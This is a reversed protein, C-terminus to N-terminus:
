LEGKIAHKTVCIYGEPATNVVYRDAAKKAGDETSYVGLIKHDKIKREMKTACEHLIWVRTKM